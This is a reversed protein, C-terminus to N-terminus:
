PEEDEAPAAYSEQPDSDPDDRTDDATDRLDTLKIPMVLYFNDTTEAGRLIAPTTPLNVQLVIEEKDIVKLSSEVFRFNFLIRFDEGDNVGPVEEHIRGKDYSEAEVTVTDGIFHLSVANNKIDSLIAARRIASVMPAKQFRFERAFSKPLVASYQPYKGEIQNSVFLMNRLRLSIQKDDLAVGVMGEDGLTKSMEDLLKHPIIISLDKPSKETEVPVRMYALIKGDTAVATLEGGHIEFLAGLLVKRPDRVPVAFLIKDLLSKFKKQEIDFSVTPDMEPWAPFDRAPMSALEARIGGCRLRASKDAVELIVEQDEPLEQVLDNFTKAPVTATGKKEVEAAVEIRVRTEYDTATFSVLNNHETTILVNSLIPLTSQPNAVSQVIAAAPALDTKKFRVRM